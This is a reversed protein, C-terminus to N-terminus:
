NAQQREVLMAKVGKERADEAMDVGLEFAIALLGALEVNKIDISQLRSRAGAFYELAFRKDAMAQGIAIACDRVRTQQPTLKTPM